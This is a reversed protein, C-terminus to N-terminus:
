LCKEFDKLSLNCRYHLRLTVLTAKTLFMYAYANKEGVM